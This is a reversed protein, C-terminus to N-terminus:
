YCSRLRYITDSCGFLIVNWSIVTLDKWLPLNTHLMKWLKAKFALCQVVICVPLIRFFSNFDFAWPKGPPETTSFGDALVFSMPEIVPRPLDWMGHLLQAWAGRNNLRHEVALSCCSNFGHARLLMSWSLLWLLLFGECQLSSSGRSVAVLSFGECCGLGLM